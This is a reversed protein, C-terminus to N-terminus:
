DEEHVYMYVVHQLNIVHPHSDEHGIYRVVVEIYGPMVARLVAKQFTKGNALSLGLIVPKGLAKLAALAAEFPHLHQSLVGTPYDRIISSM